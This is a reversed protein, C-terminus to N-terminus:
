ATPRRDQPPETTSGRHRTRVALLLTKDDGTQDDVGDIFEVLSTTSAADTVAWTFVDHFFPPYPTASAIDALIKFQLGDTSLALADIEDAPITTLRVNRAWDPSTVFTTENAYEARDPPAITDLDGSVRRIVTISDGIQAFHASAETVLGIALTCAYDSVDTGDIRAVADIAERAVHCAMTLDTEQEAALTAGAWTLVARVAAAAGIDSRPRSGAGDAVVILVGDPLGLWGCADQCPLGLRAHSAGTVSGGLVKWM